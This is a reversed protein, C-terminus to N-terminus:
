RKFMGEFLQKFSFGQTTRYSQSGYMLLGAATSLVAPQNMMRSWIVNDPVGISCPLRFIQEAANQIGLLYAGGGTLVIGDGLSPLVGAESIIDCIIRLTESVRAESVTQLAKVGITRENGNTERPVPIRTVGDEVQIVASARAKKLEEATAQQLSFAQAIDNTIHDGGVGLTGALVVSNGVYVMYDITGGGFDILAVGNKKQDHTLVSLASCIGSFAIDSVELHANRIAAVANEIRDRQAHILLMDHLLTRGSFGKPNLIGCQTGVTYAQPLSHLVHRDASLRKSKAIDQVELVDDETVVGDKSDITITGSNKEGLIHDGTVALFVKVVDIGAEDSAAKVATEISHQVQVLDFIQGKRVGTTQAIGTGLVKIKDSESSEGILVITKSTGIELAAIPPIAM